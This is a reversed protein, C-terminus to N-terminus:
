KYNTLRLIRHHSTDVVYLSGDNHVYVGHPHLLSRKPSDVGKGLITTVTKTKPDYKRIQKNNDDAIIVCDNKDVAIHKPSNFQASLAPGDKTGKKGSGAVTHITGDTHVVRLANGSRELIYINEKSDVAVARPDVLPSDTAQIGNKPVGRKGNGAVTSVTKTKLDMMRIRRNKLDAIYIKDNAPNLSICMIFNFEAELAPGDDGSFGAKGNGAFTSIVKTKGDIKRICHNWSDSIYLDGNPMAAINHMGNFTANKAPGGDGTYNKSGDGAITSFNGDADLQHVRGGELEVIYMTGKSDFDVGFPRKLKGPDPKKGNSLSQGIVIEVSPTEAHASNTICVVLLLSLFKVLM